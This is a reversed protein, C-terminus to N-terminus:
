KASHDLQATAPAQKPEAMVVKVPEIKVPKIIEIPQVANPQAVTKKVGTLVGKYGFVSAKVSKYFLYNSTVIYYRPCIIFDAKNDVCARYAAAAKAENISSGMISSSVPSIPLNSGYNVGEAFQGPGWSFFFLVTHVTANAQIKEGLSIEPTLKAETVVQLSSSPQNVYSSQCGVIFVTSVVVVCVALIRTM